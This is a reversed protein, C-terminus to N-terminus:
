FQCIKTIMGKMMLRDEIIAISDLSQIAWSVTGLSSDEKFYLRLIDFVFYTKIFDMREHEQIKFLEDLSPYGIAGVYPPHFKGTINDDQILDNVGSIYSSNFKDLFASASTNLEFQCLENSIRKGFSKESFSVQNIDAIVGSIYFSM